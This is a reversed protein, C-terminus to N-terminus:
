FIPVAARGTDVRVTRHRKCCRPSDARRDISRSGKLIYCLSLRRSQHASGCFKWTRIDTWLNKFEELGLKGSRDVDMMAVM